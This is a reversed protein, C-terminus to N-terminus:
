AASTFPLRIWPKSSSSVCARPLTCMPLPASGARVATTSLRGPTLPLVNMVAMTAAHSVDGRTPMHMPSPNGLWPQCEPQRAAKEPTAAAATASPNDASFVTCANPMAPVCAAPSM